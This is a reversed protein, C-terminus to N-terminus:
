SVSPREPWQSGSVIADGKIPFLVPSVGHRAHLHRL